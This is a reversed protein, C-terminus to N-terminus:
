TGSRYVSLCVFYKPVMENRFDRCSVLLDTPNAPTPHLVAFDDLPTFFYFILYDGQTAEEHVLPLWQGGQLQAEERLEAMATDQRDRHKKADFAGAPPGYMYRDPGWMWERVLTISPEEVATGSHFPVVVVASFNARPHGVVDFDYTGHDQNTHPSSIHVAKRYVALYGDYVQRETKTIHMVDAGSTVGKARWAEAEPSYADRYGLRSPDYPPM